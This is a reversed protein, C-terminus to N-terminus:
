LAHERRVADADRVRRAAVGADSGTDLPRRDSRISWITSRAQAMPQAMHREPCARMEGVMRDALRLLEAPLAVSKYDSPRPNSDRRRSWFALLGARRRQLPRPKPKEPTDARRSARPRLLRRRAARVGETTAFAASTSPTRCRGSRSRAGARSGATSGSMHEINGGNPAWIVFLPQQDEARPRDPEPRRPAPSSRSGVTM